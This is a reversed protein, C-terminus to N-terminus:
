ATQFVPARRRFHCPLSQLGRAGPRASPAPCAATRGTSTLSGGYLTITAIQGELRALLASSIHVGQGFALHRNAERAIDLEDPHEFQRGDRNASGLMAHVTQGRAITM